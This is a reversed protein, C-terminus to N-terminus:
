SAAEDEIRTTSKAELAALREEVAEALARVKDSPMAASAGLRFRKDLIEISRQYLSM